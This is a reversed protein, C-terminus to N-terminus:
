EIKLVVHKINKRNYTYVIHVLSDTTQIIAPYSFEGNPENELAYVDEWNKGNLSTAVFLKNRGNVWDKGALLPNYVLVQLKNSLTVADIGSNPNQLSTKTLPMWEKGNNFSWSQIIYNEKSRCLMQLTDKGYSLITPQIVNFTDCDINMYQWHEAKHDSKEVHVSWHKLDRSETSSPYLLSGDALQIPKNKIPGLINDALKIATSWTQGDDNSKKMMGWWDRPSPGVKYFLLLEKQKTKFLVPNWCAYRLSDNIIGNAISVPSSWQKNQYSTIWITTQPSSEFPGGFCSILLKHNSLEVITAAHCSAFPSNHFLFESKVLVAKQSFLCFSNLCVLITILPRM